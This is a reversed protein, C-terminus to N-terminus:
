YMSTWNQFLSTLLISMAVSNLNKSQSATQDINIVIQPGSVASLAPTAALMALLSARKFTMTATLLIPLKSYLTLIHYQCVTFM